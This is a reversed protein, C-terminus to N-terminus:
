WSSAAFVVVVSFFFIFFLGYWIFFLYLGDIEEPEFMVWKGTKWICFGNLAFLISTCLITDGSQLMEDNHFIEYCMMYLISAAVVFALLTFLWAVLNDM